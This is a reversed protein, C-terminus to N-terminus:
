CFKSHTPIRLLCVRQKAEEIKLQFIDEYTKGRYFDLSKANGSAELQVVFADAEDHLQKNPRVVDILRSLGLDGVGNDSVDIRRLDLVGLLAGSNTTM